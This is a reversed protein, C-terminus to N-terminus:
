FLRMNVTWTSSPIPHENTSVNRKSVQTRRRKPHIIRHGNSVSAAAKASTDSVAQKSVSQRELNREEMVLAGNDFVGRSLKHEPADDSASCAHLVKAIVRDIQFGAFSDTMKKVMSNQGEPPRSLVARTTNSIWDGIDPEPM